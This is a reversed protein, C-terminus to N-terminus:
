GDKALAEMRGGLVRLPAAPRGPETPGMPAARFRMDRDAPRRPSRTVLPARMDPQIMSLLAGLDEHGM